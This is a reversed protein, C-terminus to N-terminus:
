LGPSLSVEPEESAIVAVRMQPSIGRRGDSTASYSARIGSVQRSGTEIMVASTVPDIWRLALVILFSGAFWAARGCFWKGLRRLWRRGAMPRHSAGPADAAPIRASEVVIDDKPVDAHGKRRGTEAGRDQRDRGNGRQGASCPTASAARSTDPLCQRRPKVFFQSTRAQRSTPARWRSCAASTKLGNKAENKIPARTKKQQM